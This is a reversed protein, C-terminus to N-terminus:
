ALAILNDIIRTMEPHFIDVEYDEPGGRAPADRFRQAVSFAATLSMYKNDADSYHDLLKHLNDFDYRMGRTRVATAITGADDDWEANALKALLRKIDADNRSPMGRAAGVATIAADYAEWLRVSGLPWDGAAFAADAQALLAYATKTQAHTLM